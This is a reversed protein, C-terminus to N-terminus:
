IPFGAFVEADRRIHISDCGSRYFPPLGLTAFHGEQRYLVIGAGKIAHYYEGFRPFFVLINDVFAVIKQQAPIDFLIIRKNNIFNM